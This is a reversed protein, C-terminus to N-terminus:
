VRLGPESLAKSKTSQPAWPGETKSERDDSLGMQEGRGEGLGAKGRKRRKGFPGWGM